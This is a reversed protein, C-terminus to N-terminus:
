KPGEIHLEKNNQDRVSSFSSFLEHILMGNIMKTEPTLNSLEIFFSVHCNTPCVDAQQTPLLSLSVIM